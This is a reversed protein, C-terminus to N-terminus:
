EVMTKMAFVAPEILIDIQEDTLPIGHKTAYKQVVDIVYKKKIAGSELKQQAAFVASKVFERLKEDKINDIAQKLMPVLYWAIVLAILTTAIRVVTFIMEDMM